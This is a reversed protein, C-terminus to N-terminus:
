FVKCNIHITMALLTAVRCDLTASLLGPNGRKARLSSHYLNFARHKLWKSSFNAMCSEDHQVQKLMWQQALASALNSISGSVLEPHRNFLVTLKSSVVSHSVTSNLPALM